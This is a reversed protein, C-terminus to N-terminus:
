LRSYPMEPVIKTMTRPLVCLTLSVLSAPHADSCSLRYDCIATAPKVIRRPIGVSVKVGDNQHTSRTATSSPRADSRGRCRRDDRPGVALPPRM